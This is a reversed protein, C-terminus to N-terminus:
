VGYIDTPEGKNMHYVFVPLTRSLERYQLLRNEPRGHLGIETAIARKNPYVKPFSTEGYVHFGDYDCRASAKALIQRYQAASANEVLAPAILKAYPFEKRCMTIAADLYYAYAHPDSPTLDEYPEINPENGLEIYIDPKLDYWPMIEQVVWEPHLYPKKSSPDGQVTRIITDPTLTLMRAMSNCYWQMGWGTVLKLADYGNSRVFDRVEEYTGSTYILGLKM